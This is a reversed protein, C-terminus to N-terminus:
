YQSRSLMMSLIDCFGEIERLTEDRVNSAPVVQRVLQVFGSM